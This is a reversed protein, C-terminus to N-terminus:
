NGNEIQDCEKNSLSDDDHDDPESDDNIDQSDPLIDFDEVTQNDKFDPM